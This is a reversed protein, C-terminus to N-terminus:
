GRFRVTTGPRPARDVGPPDTRLRAHVHMDHWGDAHRVAARLTGEVAFGAREAVACSATNASSHELSLRHLEAHGFCWRTLAEVARVALGRGRAAPTVWYSLQASAETLLIGRLGVQGVPRDDDGVLAWSADTEAQWRRAWQATWRRAEGDSDLRRAHWRQIDPCDFAARVAEADGERWPRLVLGADATLRPQPRANIAGATLAPEVLSPVHGDDSGLSWATDGTWAVPRGTM